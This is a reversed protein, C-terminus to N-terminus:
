NLVNMLFLLIWAGIGVAIIATIFSVMSKISKLYTTQKAMLAIRIEENSLEGKNLQYYNIQSQGMRDPTSKTKIIDEKGEAEEKSISTKAYIGAEELLNNYQQKTMYGM